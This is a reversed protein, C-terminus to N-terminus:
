NRRISSALVINRRRVIYKDVIGHAQIDRTMEKARQRLLFELYADQRSLHNNVFYHLHLQEKARNFARFFSLKEEVSEFEILVRTRMRRLVTFPSTVSITRMLVRVRENDGSEPGSLDLGDILAHKARAPADEEDQILARVRRAQRLSAIERELDNGPGATSPEVMPAAPMREGAPPPITNNLPPATSTHTHTPTPTTAPVPVSSPSDLRSLISAVTAELATLRPMFPTVLSVLARIDAQLASNSVIDQSGSDSPGPSSDHGTADEEPIPAISSTVQVRKPLPLNENSSESRARSSRAKAKAKRKKPM